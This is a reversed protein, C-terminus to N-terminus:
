LLTSTHWQITERLGKTFDMAATFGFEKKARTTDIKRRPQGNPKTTDWVVKGTYEMEESIKAVLDKISIEQGSGVNVPAPQNYKETALLIADAADKVFLFERTPTGDGWCVIHDIHQQKATHIKQILEPIVHSSAPNFISGPGYLNTPILYISNFNYETRYAQSQVLLLRKALGYPANTEEPYGNWLDEEKFPIPTFKPYSCVTGIAVFKKVGYRRAYEMVQSGMIANDYCFAGPHQQNAQIGGVHAALHIVIDTNPNEEFLRRTGDETTLDYKKSRPIVIDKCNRKRLASCLHSGLFGSGGTVIVKKNQWFSSM